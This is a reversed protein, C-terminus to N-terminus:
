FQEHIIFYFTFKLLPLLKCLHKERRLKYFFLKLIFTGRIQQNKMTM